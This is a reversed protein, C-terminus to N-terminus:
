FKPEVYQKFIVLYGVYYFVYLWGCVGHVILWLFSHNHMWSLVMAIIGGVTFCGCGRNNDDSM